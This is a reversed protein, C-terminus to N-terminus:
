KTLAEAVQGMLVAFPMEIAAYLDNSIPDANDAMIEVM